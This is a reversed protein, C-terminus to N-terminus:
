EKTDMIRLVFYPVLMFAIILIKYFGIISIYITDYAEVTLNHHNEWFQYVFDHAFLFILWSFILILFNIVSCWGLFKRTTQTNM